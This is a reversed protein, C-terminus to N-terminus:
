RDSVCEGVPVTVLTRRVDGVVWVWVSKEDGVVAVVSRGGEVGEEGDCDDDNVIYLGPPPPPLTPPMPQGNPFLDFVDSAAGGVFACLASSFFRFFSSARTRLSCSATSSLRRVSARRAFASLALRYVVLLAPFVFAHSSSMAINPPRTHSPTTANDCISKPYQSQPGRGTVKKKQGCM